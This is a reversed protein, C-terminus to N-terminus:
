GSSPWGLAARVSWLAQLGVSFGGQRSRSTVRVQVAAKVLNGQSRKASMDEFAWLMRLQDEVTWTGHRSCELWVICFDLWASAKLIWVSSMPMLCVSVEHSSWLCHSHNGLHGENPFFLIRVLCSGIPLWNEQKISSLLQYWYFHNVWSWKSPALKTQENM